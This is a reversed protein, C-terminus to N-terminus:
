RQPALANPASAGGRSRAPPAAAAAEASPLHRVRRLVAAFVGASVLPALPPAGWAVAAAVALAPSALLAVFAAGEWPLFGTRRAEALVWALPVALIVLDYHFLYPTALPVAAAMLAGEARAGPRGRRVAAVALACAGVAAAAQAAYALGVQGGSALRVAAFVSAMDSGFRSPTAELWRSADHISTLFAPWIDAGLVATAAAVLGLVTASAARFARWRGAAALLVPVVLGLQPKYALVGLCIGALAPRKGLFYAAAGLLAASLFGNQVYWANLFAAPFAFFPLVAVWGPLLARLALAYAAGTAALWLVASATYPLLALPLFVLLSVPLYIFMCAPADARGHLAQQAARLVDKDYVGSPPGTLAVKSAAWFCQFDLPTTGEPPFLQPGLLLLYLAVVAPPLVQGVVAACDRWRFRFAGPSERHLIAM